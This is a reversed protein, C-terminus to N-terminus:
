ATTKSSKKKYHKNAISIIRHHKTCVTECNESDNDNHDGNKHNVELLSRLMRSYEVEDLEDKYKVVEPDEAPSYGCIVCATGRHFLYPRSAKGQGNKYEVSELQHKRCLRDSGPGTMQTIPKGCVVCSKGEVLQKEITRRSKRKDDEALRLRVTSM